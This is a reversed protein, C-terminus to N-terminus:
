RGTHAAALGHRLDSASLRGVHVDRVVGAADVFVTTPLSSVGLAGTLAGGPDRALPYTVGLSRAFSQGVSVPESADVGLFRTAPGATTAAHQLTPMEEACPACSRAWFNLVLPRGALGKTTVARGDYGTLTATPLPQGVRVLAHSGLGHSGASSCAALGLLAVGALAAGM